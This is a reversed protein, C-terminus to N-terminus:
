KKQGKVIKFVWKAKLVEDIPILIETEKIKFVLRGDRVDTLVDEINKANIFGKDVETGAPVVEGLSKQLKLGLRRGKSLEFQWPARVQRDLGPTSVELQYAEGPVLNEDTDLIANLGRSVMTCEEIGAGEPKDIFVRLVRGRGSGQIELDYIIVGARIAVEDALTALKRMWPEAFHQDLTALFQNHYGLWQPDELPTVSSSALNEIESSEMDIEDIEPNVESDMASNGEIESELTEKNKM